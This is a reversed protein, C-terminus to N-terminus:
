VITPSKESPFLTRLWLYISSMADQLLVNTLFSEDLSTELNRKDVIGSSLVLPMHIVKMEMM